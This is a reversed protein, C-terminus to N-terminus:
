LDSGYTGGGIHQIQDTISNTAAARQGAYGTVSPQDPIKSLLKDLHLKFTEVRVGTIDRIHKPLCNYLVTAHIGFTNERITKIKNSCESRKLKPVICYRGRRDSLKTCVENASLNPALGEIIKWLYIIQYRETRRQTSYLSLTKLRSWYDLDKVEAIQNTFRRQIAELAAWDQNHHPAWMQSCYDIRPLVLSNFLKLMPVKERTLFTRLIWASLGRCKSCLIDIHDRFMLNNSMMVGLDKASSEFPIDQDNPTKYMFNKIEESVSGYRLAQFKLENFNMNNEESWTYIDNLSSQLDNCDELLSIIHSVKTDDAFSSVVSKSVKHDIDSIMILFLIPGLCSGQPVGSKVPASNSLKRNVSVTQRRDTIFNHIWIGIKGSIGLKKLKRLLINHDVVDFAKSFDLYVVDVTKGNSVAEIIADFHKILQSLCSRLKRFGHQNINMKNNEELYTVIRICLVKELAKLIHSILNIPRYNKPDSKLGGKPIPTIIADKLDNPIEGTDISNRFIQYLPKSLEHNCERLYIAPFGDPGAAAHPKISKICNEVDEPTFTIDTLWNEDDDSTEFFSNIDDIKASGKPESFVSCYQSQLTEAIHQPDKITEGTEKDLLPGIKDKCKRTKNAYTFFYKANIAIKEIAQNEKHLRESQHSKKINVDIEDLIQDKNASDKKHLVRRRQRWLARRERYYKSKTNTTSILKESTHQKAINLTKEYFIDLQDAVSKDRLLETWDIESLEKNIEQYNAKHFNLSHFGTLTNDIVPETTDGLTQPPNLSLEILRHDSLKNYETINCDYLEDSINTFFLDITNNGRTPQSIHQHLFYDDTLSLLKEIQLKEDTTSPTVKPCMTDTWTINPFNFDGTIVIDINQYNALTNRIKEIIPLFDASTTAPPRYVVCTICNKDKYHLILLDCIKNSYSLIQSVNQSEHVYSIIGGGKRTSARDARYIDYNDIM